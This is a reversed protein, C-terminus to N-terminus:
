FRYRMVATMQRMTAAATPAGYNIANVVTSVNSFNTQNLVNNAEMRFELRRRTEGLAFSRGFSMNVVLSGPGTITNRGANGLAGNAPAAFAALNFFGSGGTVPLGTADARRSGTGGTQALQSGNGLVRATLPTGTQATLSGSLTWERLVRTLLNGPAGRTARSGAPSTLLWNTDFVHTRNFSSLGREASLDLWNQAVTNGAGGFTSSNDISKSWRYTAGFSIGRRFRQTLRSSFSHLISNGNSSDYTFGTASGLQNRPGSSQQGLSNPTTQVDLRTGKTGLYSLETFLGRPLDHQLSFNWTQVYPTRFYRDIAITNTVDGPRVSTFGQALPLPNQPTSNLTFSTAFPPQQALRNAFGNYVQGNYYVGYGARIITSRKIRPVKWALAVRPAFNNRDPNILGSPFAGSYAGAQGPTVVSVASFNPAIDLNALHGRKEELPSFYEYRLGFNLTLRAHIKFDDSVFASISNQRFYTSSDGFRISSSQAYGYLYDALDFGTNAVPTGTATLQSTAQGTFNLTGRANPDTRNSPSARRYDIGSTVSHRGYIFTLGEGLGFTQTRNLSPNGDSLAGFNTFNLNPPGYNLPNRSTGAIGLQTAIDQGNAFYPVLENRNRNFTVRANSIIRKALNRTWSLNTNLGSGSSSDRFAYPQLNTGDRTQLGLNLALRDKKTVNRQLRLNLNVSDQAASGYYAYNNVRAATTPRPIYSLLKQAIPDLRSSPIVNGALPQRSTPDFLQVPNTGQLSRSFDGARELDTPVTAFASYPQRARTLFFNVTFFTSTDRILQGVVLPGGLMVGFRSQAYAPQTLNDGTISFPKANWVSNNLTFSFMGRIGANRNVRNGFQTGGSPNPLRGRQGPGRQGPGGRGGFGGGGGPGSPGGFGGFGGGGFGGGGFGGGGPAVGPGGRGGPGGPAGGGAGRPGGPGGMGGPGALGGPGGFGGPGGIGFEGEPRFGGMSPDFRMASDMGDPGANQGLGQSLSGSVLIAETSTAAGAPAGAASDPATFEVTEPTETAQARGAGAGGGMAMRRAMPSEALKLTIEIPTSATLAQDPQRYPQFGFMQVELTGKGAAADPFRFRGDPGALTQFVQGNVTVKVSAGPIPQNASVVRGTQGFALASAIMWYLACALKM